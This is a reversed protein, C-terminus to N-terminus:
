FCLPTQLSLGPALLGPPAALGAQSHLQRRSRDLATTESVPLLGPAPASGASPALWGPPMSYCSPPPGHAAQGLLVGGGPPPVAAAFAPVAPSLPMHWSPAPEHALPAAGNGRSQPVSVTIIPGPPPQCGCVNDKAPWCSVPGAIPGVFATDGRTHVGMPPGLWSGDGAELPVPARMANPGLLERPPASSATRIASSTPSPPLVTGAPCLLAEETASPIPQTPTSSRGTLANVYHQLMALSEPGGADTASGSRIDGAVVEGLSPPVDGLPQLLERMLRMHEAALSRAKTPLPEACEASAVELCACREGLSAVRERLQALGRRASGATEM